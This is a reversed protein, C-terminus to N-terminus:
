QYSVFEPVPDVDFTEEPTMLRSDEDIFNKWGWYVGEPADRLLADWTDFKTDIPGQGDAHILIAVEPRSTDLDERNQIMQLQFQHLILMKQPLDNERTFDALYHVVENVEEIEVRGIQTLHVQDDTLRWEPDLAVGVHPHVLLDEYREIQDVFHHRGPQFDLVVYQGAEAAAEILPEFTEPDWENSYTGDEGASTSAVTVIIELAPIVQDDTLETYEEAYERALDITESTGQEGLIGLLPTVPHGYLAIYRKGGFVEQGGGPLEVGTAATLVRWDFETEDGFATGMGLVHDAEALAAIVEADTSIAETLIVEVGAARAIGVSAAHEPAGDTLMVPGDLRETPVTPRIEGVEEPTETGAPAVNLIEGPELGVLAAVFDDEAATEPDTAGADDEPDSDETGAQDNDGQAGERSDETDEEGADAEAGDEDTGDEDTGNEDTGDAGAGDEGNDGEGDDDETATEGDEELPEEEEAGDDTPDEVPQEAPDIAEELEVARLDLGFIEGLADPDEPDPVIGLGTVDFESVDVAGVTLVSHTSLRVLEDEVDLGGDPQGTLLLPAGVAIAISAARATAAEDNYPAMIVVHASEFYQENVTLALDVPDQSAILTPPGEPAQTTAVPAPPPAPATPEPDLDVGGTCGALVLGAAAVLSLNGVTRRM